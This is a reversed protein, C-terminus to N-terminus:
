AYQIHLLNGEHFTPEDSSLNGDDDNTNDDDGNDDNGDVDDKKFHHFCGTNTPDNPDDPLDVVPSFMTPFM